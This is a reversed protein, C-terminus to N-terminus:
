AVTSLEWDYSAVRAGLRGTATGPYQYLDRAGLAILDNKGDGSVDGISFLSSFAGWGGTGIMTRNGFSGKANGPYLWLRGSGDVAVIDSRRDGNLDGAAGITRMTNWNTGILARTGFSRTANGPYRWLRGATDVAILDNRGDNDLDGTVAIHRMTNWGGGLSRRAGFSGDGRGPYFWLVGSSDRAILDETRNGDLDGHRAFATMANWGGGIRTAPGHGTLFWLTGDHHRQLLDSHGDGDLDGFTRTSDARGNETDWDSYSDGWACERATKTLRFSGLRNDLTTDKNSYDALNMGGQGYNTGVVVVDHIPDIYQYSTRTFLCINDFGTRNYVSSAKNHWSGLTRQSSSYVAMAGAGYKGDFLCFRGTPCREFGAPAPAAQAPAISAVLLGLATMTTAITSRISMRM